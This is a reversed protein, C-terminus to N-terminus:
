SFEPEGQSDWTVSSSVPDVDLGTPKACGPAIALSFSRGTDADDPDTMEGCLETTDPTVPDIM